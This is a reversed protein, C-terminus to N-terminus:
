PRSETDKAVPEPVGARTFSFPPHSVVPPDRGAEVQRFGGSPRGAVPCVQRSAGGGWGEGRVGVLGGLLRRADNLLAAHWTRTGSPQPRCSM